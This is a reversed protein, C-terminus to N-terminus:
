DLSTEWKTQSIEIKVGAYFLFSLEGHASILVGGCIRLPAISTFRWINEFEAGYPPQTTLKM